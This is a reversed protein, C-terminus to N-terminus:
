GSAAGAAAGAAKAALAGEVATVLGSLSGTDFDPDRDPLNVGFHEEVEFLIEIANLSDIGADKLTAGSPIPPADEPRHRAVIALIQQETDQSM